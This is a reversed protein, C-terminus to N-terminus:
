RHRGVALEHENAMMDGGDEDGSSGPTGFREKRKNEVEEFWIELEDEFPWMWVPPMEDQAYNEQWDCIRSAHEIAQLL